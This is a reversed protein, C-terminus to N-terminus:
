VKMIEKRYKAIGIGLLEVARSLDQEKLVYAIRIEDLGCDPTAYFSKGPAYMVTDGRDDFETLLWTQFKDADDVPLKAMVYFAGMPEEVLVGPIKRLGSICVDRRRRYEQISTSIFSDDVSYLAAAGLQDLTAVSLRSQCLKLVANQLAKNKTIVCGIRAGCSSFRKSVSDILIM